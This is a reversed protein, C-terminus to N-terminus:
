TTRPLSIPPVMTCTSTSELHSRTRVNLLPRIPTERAGEAHGTEKTMGEGAIGWHGWRGLAGAISM